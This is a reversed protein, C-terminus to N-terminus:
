SLSLWALLQDRRTELSEQLTPEAASEDPPASVTRATTPEAADDDAGAGCLACLGEAVDEELIDEVVPACHARRQAAAVMAMVSRETTAKLAEAWEAGTSTDIPPPCKRQKAFRLSRWLLRRHALWRAYDQQVFSGSWIPAGEGGHLGGAEAVTLAVMEGLLEACRAKLDVEPMCRARKYGGPGGFFDEDDDDYRDPAADCVWALRPLTEPMLDPPPALGGAQKTLREVLEANSCANVDERRRLLFTYAPAGMEEGEAAAAPAIPALALKADAADDGPDEEVGGTADPESESLLDDDVLDSLDVSSVSASARPSPHRTSSRRRTSSRHRTSSRDRTSRRRTSSERAAEEERAAAEEEEEETKEAEAVAEREKEAAREARRAAKEEKKAARKAEAMKLKKVAARHKAKAEAAAIDKELAAAEAETEAEAEEADRALADAEAARAEIRRKERERVGRTDEVEEVTEVRDALINELRDAEKRTVLQKERTEARRRVLRALEALAAEKARLADRAAGIAEAKEEALEEAREKAAESARRAEDIQAQAEELEKAVEDEIEGRMEAASAKVKEVEARALQAVKSPIAATAAKAAEVAATSRRSEARVADRAAQIEDMARTSENRLLSSAAEAEARAKSAEASAARAKPRPPGASAM